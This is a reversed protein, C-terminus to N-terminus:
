RFKSHPVFPVTVPKSRTKTCKLKKSAGGPACLTWERGSGGKSAPIDPMNERADIQVTEDRYKLFLKWVETWGKITSNGQCQRIAENISNTYSRSNKSSSSERELWEVFNSALYKEDRARRKEEMMDATKMTLTMGPEWSDEYEGDWKVLYEWGGLCTPARRALKIEKVPWTGKKLRKWQKIDTESSLQGETDGKKVAETWENTLQAWEQQKLEEILTKYEAVIANELGYIDGVQKPTLWEGTKKDSIDAWTAIGAAALRRSFTCRKGETNWVDKQEEWIRPGAMYQEDLTMGWLSRKLPGNMRKGGNTLKGRWGCKLMGAIYSEIILDESLEKELHTPRWELPHIGRCGLNRCTRAIADEIGSGTCAGRRKWM